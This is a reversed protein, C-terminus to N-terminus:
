NRIHSESVSPCRRVCCKSVLFELDDYDDSNLQLVCLDPTGLRLLLLLLLMFCCYRRSILLLLPCLLEVTVVFGKDAAANNLKRVFFGKNQFFFIIRRRDGRKEGNFYFFNIRTRLSSPLTLKPFVRIEGYNGFSGKMGKRRLVVVVPLLCRTM